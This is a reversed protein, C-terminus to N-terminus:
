MGANMIMGHLEDPTAREVLKTNYFPNENKPLGSSAIREIKRTTGNPAKISSAAIVVDILANHMVDMTKAMEAQRRTEQRAVRRAKTPAVYRYM